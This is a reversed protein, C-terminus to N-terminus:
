WIVRHGMVLDYFFMSPPDKKFKQLSALHFEVDIQYKGTLRESLSHLAQGYRHRLAPPLGKAFVYFEVDNYLHDGADDKFIGGEGRGYGGGLVIAELIEKPFLPPIFEAAEHCILDLIEAPTARPTQLSGAQPHFSTTEM